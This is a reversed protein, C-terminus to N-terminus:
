GPRRTAINHEKRVKQAMEFEGMIEYLSAMEGYMGVKQCFDIKRQLFDRHAENPKMPVHYYANRYDGLRCYLEHAKEDHYGCESAIKAARKLDGGLEALNALHLNFQSKASPDLQYFYGDRKDAYSRDSENKRNLRQQRWEMKRELTNILHSIEQRHTGLQEAPKESFKEYSLKAIKALGNETIDIFSRERDDHSSGLTFSILCERELEVIEKLLDKNRWTAEGKVRNVQGLFEDYLTENGMQLIYPAARKLTEYRLRIEHVDQENPSGSISSALTEVRGLMTRLHHWVYRWDEPFKANLVGSELKTTLDPHKEVMKRLYNTRERFFEPNNGYESEMLIFGRNELVEAVKDTDGFESYINIAEETPRKHNYGLILSALTYKVVKQSDASLLSKGAHHNLIKELYWIKGDNTNLSKAHELVTDIQLPRKVFKTKIPTASKQAATIEVKPEEGKQRGTFKSTLYSILSM